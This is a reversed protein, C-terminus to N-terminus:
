RSRSSTSSAIRYAAQSACSRSILRAGAFHPDNDVHIKRGGPDVVEFISAVISNVPRGDAGGIRRVTDDQIPRSRMLPDDQRAIKIEASYQGRDPAEFGLM